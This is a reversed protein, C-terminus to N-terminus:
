AFQKGASAQMMYEFKEKLAKGNQKGLLILERRSGDRLHLILRGAHPVNGMGWKRDARYETKAIDKWPIQFNASHMQLLKESTPDIHEYQEATRTQVWFEQELMQSTAIPPNAVLGRVAAGVLMRDMLFVKYTRNLIVAYYEMAAFWLPQDTAGGIKTADHQPELTETKGPRMLSWLRRRGFLYWAAMLLIFPTWSLLTSRLESNM